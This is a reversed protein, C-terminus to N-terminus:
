FMKSNLTAGAEWLSCNNESLESFRQQFRQFSPQTFFVKICIAPWERNEFFDSQMYKISQSLLRYLSPTPLPGCIQRPYHAKLCIPVCGALWFLSIECSLMQQILLPKIADLRVMQSQLYLILPCQNWNERCIQLNASIDNTDLLLLSPSNCHQWVSLFFFLFITSFCPVLGHWQSEIYVEQGKILQAELANIWLM